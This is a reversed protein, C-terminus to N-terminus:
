ARGTFLAILAAPAFCIISLMWIWPFRDALLNITTNGGLADFDYTINLIRTTNAALNTINLVRSIANYTNALPAETANDSVIRDVSGPEGDYLDDLLTENASPLAGTTTSFTDTRSDTRFDYIVDTLPLMFLIAAALIIVFAYFVRM